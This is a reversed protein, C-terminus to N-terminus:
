LVATQRRLRVKKVPAATPPRVASLGGLFLDVVVPAMAAHDLPGGPKMWTFMWNIMGFLLMTLPAALHTPALEPRLLKVQEAFARVVRRETNLVRQRPVPDLFKVDETLVRHAHQAGAYALVFREILMALHERPALGLDRVEAVQAALHNVHTQAIDALLAQKDAFYHYVAAKSLGCAAAVENMSTGPYGQRAFLEAARALIIDRQDDYGASRPRAM